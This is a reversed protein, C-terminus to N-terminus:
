NIKTHSGKNSEFWSVRGARLDRHTPASAREQRKRAPSAGDRQIARLAREVGCCIVAAIHRNGASDIMRSLCFAFLFPWRFPSRKTKALGASPLVIARFLSPPHLNRLHTCIIYFMYDIVEYISLRLAGMTKSWPSRNKLLITEVHNPCSWVNVASSSQQYMFQM